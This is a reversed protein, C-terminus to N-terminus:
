SHPQLLQPLSRLHRGDGGRPLHMQFCSKIITQKKTEPPPATVVRSQDEQSVFVVPCSCAGEAICRSAPSHLSKKAMATSKEAVKPANPAKKKAMKPRQQIKKGSQAMKPRKQGMKVMEEREKKQGKKQSKQGRKTMKLWKRRRQSMEPWKKPWKEAPKCKKQPPPM